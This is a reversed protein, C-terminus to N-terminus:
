GYAVHSIKLAHKHECNWVHYFSLLHTWSYESYCIWRLTSTFHTNNHTAPSSDEHICQLEVPNKVPQHPNAPRLQQESLLSLLVAVSGELNNQEADEAERPQGSAWRPLLLQFHSGNLRYQTANGHDPPLTQFGNHLNASAVQQQLARFWVFHSFFGLSLAKSHIIAWSAYTTWSSVNVVTRFFIAYYIKTSGIPGSIFACFLLM